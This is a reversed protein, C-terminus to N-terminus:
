LSGAVLRMGAGDGVLAFRKAHYTAVYQRTLWVRWRMELMQRLYLRYIAAVIFVAALISFRVLLAKFDTFSKQELANYFLRNWANLLVLIYVNGLTLSVIALLLLRAQRREESFWYPRVLLWVTALFFTRRIPPTTTM